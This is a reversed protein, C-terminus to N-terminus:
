SELPPDYGLKLFIAYCKITYILVIKKVKAASLLLPCGSIYFYTKM